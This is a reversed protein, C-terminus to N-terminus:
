SLDVWNGHFGLPVHVGLLVEAQPQINSGQAKLIVVKSSEQHIHHVYCLLYGNGEAADASEPIFVVEGTVWQDGFEYTTKERTQLDHCILHNAKSM